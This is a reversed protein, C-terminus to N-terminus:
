IMLLIKMLYNIDSCHLFDNRKWLKEINFSFIRYFKLYTRLEYGYYRKSMIEYAKRLCEMQNKSEKLISAVEQMGKPLIEPIEKKSFINYKM